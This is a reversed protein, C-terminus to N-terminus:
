RVVAWKRSSCYGIGSRGLLLLEDDDDVRETVAIVVLLEGPAIVFSLINAHQDDIPSAWLTRNSGARCRVLDGPRM